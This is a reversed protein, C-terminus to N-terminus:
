LGSIWCYVCCALEKSERPEGEPLFISFLCIFPYILYNGLLCLPTVLSLLRCPFGIVVPKWAWDQCFELHSKAEGILGNLLHSFQPGKLASIRTEAQQGRGVSEPAQSYFSGRGRVSGARRQPLKNSSCCRTAGGVPPDM